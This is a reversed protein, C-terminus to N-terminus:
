GGCAKESASGEQSDHGGCNVASEWTKKMETEDTGAKKHKKKGKLLNVDAGHQPGAKGGGTIWFLKPCFIRQDKTKIRRFPNM